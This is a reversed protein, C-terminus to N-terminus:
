YMTNAAERESFHHMEAIRDFLEGGTCLDTVIYLYNDDRFFEFVRIINPHDLKKM